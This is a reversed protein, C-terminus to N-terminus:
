LLENKVLQQGMKQSGLVWLLDDANMIFNPSVDLLPLMGREVGILCASWNSKIGSDRVSCGALGSDKTVTVAYAFLQQEESWQGQNGILQHLTVREDGTAVLFQNKKNALQFNDLAKETGLVYLKDGPQIQEYGEPINLHKKGRVIKIVNVQFFKRWQLEKLEQNAATSTTDCVYVDVKLREDLWAHDTGAETKRLDQLKKENFNSLFRAEMELYRGVLWDSRSILLIVPM